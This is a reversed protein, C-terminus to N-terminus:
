ADKLVVSASNCFEETKNLQGLAVLELLGNDLAFIHVGGGFFDCVVTM